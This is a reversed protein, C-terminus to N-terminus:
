LPLGSSVLRLSPMAAMSFDPWLQDVIWSAVPQLRAVMAFIALRKFCAAYIAVNIARLLAGFARFRDRLSVKESPSGRGPPPGSNFPPTDSVMIERLRPDRTREMVGLADDGGHIRRPLGARREDRHDPYMALFRAVAIYPEHSYQEFFMWQLARAREFPDKPVLPSTEAFHWMIANSEFLRRGDDFEVAPIRGNPFKRLFEGTRTSGKIIDLEIREFPIQLQTLLLRVKYGNGSPLYDYLRIM